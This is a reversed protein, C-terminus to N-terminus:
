SFCCIYNTYHYQQGRIYVVQLYIYIRAILLEEVTIFIPLFSSVSGLDLRNSESFLLSITLDKLSNTDKVCAKCIGINDGEM